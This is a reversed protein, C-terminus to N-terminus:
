QCDIQSVSQHGAVINVKLSSEFDKSDVSARNETATAKTGAAPQGPDDKKQMDLNDCASLSTMTAVLVLLAAVRQTNSQITSLFM